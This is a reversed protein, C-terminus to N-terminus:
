NQGNEQLPVDSQEEAGQVYAVDTGTDAVQPIEMAQINPMIGCSLHIHLYGWLMSVETGKHIYRTIYWAM